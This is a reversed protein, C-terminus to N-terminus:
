IQWISKTKNTTKLTHLCARQTKGTEEVALKALETHNDLGALSMNYVINNIQKQDLKMYEELAKNANKVLKDIMEQINVEESM